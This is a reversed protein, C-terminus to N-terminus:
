RLRGRFEVGPRTAEEKLGEIYWQYADEIEAAPTPRVTVQKVSWPRSNPCPGTGPIGVPGERELDDLRRKLEGRQGGTLPARPAASLSDWLDEMLDLREEPTLSGIDLRHKSM